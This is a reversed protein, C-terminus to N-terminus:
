ESPPQWGKEYAVENIFTHGNGLILYPVGNRWVFAQQKEEETLNLQPAFEIHCDCMSLNSLDIIREDEFQTLIKEADLVVISYSHSYLLKITNVLRKDPTTITENCGITIQYCGTDFDKFISLAIGLQRPAEKDLYQGKATNRSKKYFELNCIRCDMHDNNMHDVVYGQATMSKLMQEGYWKAMMYRHLGGGLTANSPYDGNQLYWTHSTLESYYDERYTAQAARHWEPRTIWIIDGTISFFNKSKRPM